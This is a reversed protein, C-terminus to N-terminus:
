SVPNGAFSVGSLPSGQLARTGGYGNEWSLDKTVLSPAFM